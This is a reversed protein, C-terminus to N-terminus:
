LVATYGYATHLLASPLYFLYGIIFIFYYFIVFMSKNIVPCFFETFFTRILFFVNFRTKRLFLLFFRLYCVKGRYVVCSAYVQQDEDNLLIQNSDIYYNQSNREIEGSIFACPADYLVDDQSFM